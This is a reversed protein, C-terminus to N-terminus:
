FMMEIEQLNEIDPKISDRDGVFKRIRAAVGLEAVAGERMDRPYAGPYFLALAEFGTIGFLYRATEYGDDALCEGYKYIGIRMSGAIALKFVVGDDDFAGSFAVVGMACGTTNCSMLNGLPAATEGWTQMDFKLGTQDNADAELLDALKLLKAPNFETPRFLGERSIHDTILTM